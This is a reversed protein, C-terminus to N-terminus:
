CDPDAGDILGDCDNDIGDSCRPGKEKSHTPVCGQCAPDGSCDSDACDVDGDCDEDLGGTCVEAGTNCDLGCNSCNEGPSCALDGCCFAGGGPAEVETCDFGGSTCRSDGCFVPSQGDGDGCCFRSSPKGGQVGACDAPCSVCDEGDAPNAECIGNGCVAGPSSGSVCDSACSNCDEGSECIGNGCGTVCQAPLDFSETVNLSNSNGGDSAGSGMGRKAFGEWILCENAGGNNNQDALLIADRADLFTPNCGQLKLGDVVLQIALNNGGTGTYLNPDFGHANTLNWYVEWVATAWVTGVGHPVSLTGAALEGYTLPNVAMDTTYPAPRIGQGTPPEFISYTGVGRATTSTDTSNATFFLTCLDSWGEGAQQQGSLCNVNTRGGTLRNSLGHCYEHAIIGNDLDSDRNPISSGADKETANVGGALEAKITDGDSQGIMVSSVSVSGGQAGAGMSLVGDGQNNVVIAAIAGANEANLVKTGFECSGRDILAIRGATFGVLGNCGESGNATGDDVLEVDGTIGTTNLAAGFAASSATYDGSISVPSNVTVISDATPTWEFMQMRPNSGDSPTGFNANNTGSGDQADANVADSGGPAGTYNNEQFNGSAEDFGYHYLLDHLVNNWYFLNTIAAAQYDVPSQTALDIPFQFDLGAGGSPRFGGSNNADRDEQAFVNNGRTDTFEAGPNGDTDHWGFPSAATDAPNTEITRPGDSPSENPLAYVQYTDADIWNSKGLIESTEADVWLNWWHQGDLQRIVLDWALRVDGQGTAFYVLKAPIAELSIGAPDFRRVLAVGKAKTIPVVKGRVELELAAAAALLADAASLGPKAVNVRSKLGRVMGDGLNIVRGDAAINVNSESGVVELGGVQQRFYIHTTGNHRSAYKHTVTLADLDEDSLGRKEMNARLYRLAIALPEDASKESTLFRPGQDQAALPALGLALLGVLLTALIKNREHSM